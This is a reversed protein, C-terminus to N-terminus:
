ISGPWVATHQYDHGLYWRETLGRDELDLDFRWEGDLLEYDSARIVSRPLPNVLYEKVAQAEERDRTFGFEKTCNGNVM